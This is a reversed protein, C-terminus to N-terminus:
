MCESFTWTLSLLELNSCHKQKKSSEFSKHFYIVNLSSSEAVVTIRNALEATTGLLCAFKRTVHWLIKQYHTSTYPHNTYIKLAASYYAKVYRELSKPAFLAMFWITVITLTRM